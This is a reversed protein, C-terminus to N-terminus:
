FEPSVTICVSKDALHHAVTNHLFHATKWNPLTKVFTLINCIDSNIDNLGAGTGHPRNSALGRQSVNEKLSDHISVDDKICKKM